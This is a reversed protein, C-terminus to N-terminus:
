GHEMDMEPSISHVQIVQLEKGEWERKGENYETLIERTGADSYDDARVSGLVGCFDGGLECFEQKEDLWYDLSKKSLERSIKIICEEDFKFIGKLFVDQGFVGLIHLDDFSYSASLKPNAKMYQVYSSIMEPKIEIM